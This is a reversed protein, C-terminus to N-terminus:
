VLLTDLVRIETMSPDPTRRIHLLEPYTFLRQLDMALNLSDTCNEETRGGAYGLDTWIAVDAPEEFKAVLGTEENKWASNRSNVPNICHNKIAEFSKKSVKAEIVYTTASRIM